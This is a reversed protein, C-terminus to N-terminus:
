SECSCRFGLLSYVNNFGCVSIGSANRDRSNSYSLASVKRAGADYLKESCSLLTSGQTIQDEILLIPVELSNGSRVHYDDGVRELLEVLPIGTLRSINKALRRSAEAPHDASAVSAPIYSMQQPKLENVTAAMIHSVLDLFAMCAKPGSRMRQNTSHRKYDKAYRLVEGFRNDRYAKIYNIKVSFNNSSTLEDIKVPFLRVLSEFYLRRLRENKSVEYLTIITPDFRFSWGNVSSVCNQMVSELGAFAIIQLNRRISVGPNCRLFMIAIAARDHTNLLPNGLVMNLREILDIRRTVVFGTMTLGKMLNILDGHLEAVTFVDTVDRSKFFDIFENLNGIQNVASEPLLSLPEECPPFSSLNGSQMDVAAMFETDASQAIRVDDAEDGIYLIERTQIAFRIALDRLYKTKDNVGSSGSRIENADIEKIHMATSVYENASGTLIHCRYGKSILEGPLQDVNSGFSFANENSNFKELLHWPVRSERPFHSTDILTGDLDFVVLKIGM